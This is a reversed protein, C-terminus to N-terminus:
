GCPKGGRRSGIPGGVNGANREGCALRESGPLGEPIEGRRFRLDINTNETAAQNGPLAVTDRDDNRSLSEETNAETENVVDGGANLGKVLSFDSRPPADGRQGIANETYAEGRKNM